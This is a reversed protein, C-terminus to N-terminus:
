LIELSIKVDSGLPSLVVSKLNALFDSGARALSKPGPLMEGFVIYEEERGTRPSFTSSQYSSIHCLRGLWWRVPTSPTFFIIGRSPNFLRTSYPATDSVLQSRRPIKYIAERGGLCVNLMCPQSLFLSVPSVNTLQHNQVLGPLHDCKLIPEPGM